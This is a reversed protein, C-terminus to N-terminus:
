TRVPAASGTPPRAGAGLHERLAALFRPVEVFLDGLIPIVIPRPRTRNLVLLPAEPDKNFAFVVARTGLWGLHQPAGSVGIALLVRPDVAVGTQGIQCSDPLLGLDQTVKRTAGIAIPGVGLSELGRRLPEIVEEIGDRSGIGYGVDIVFEAESLSVGLAAEARHLAGALLDAAGPLPVEDLLVPPVPEGELGAPRPVAHLEAACVLDSRGIPAEVAFRVQGEYCRGAAFLLGDRRTLEDVGDLLHRAPLGDPAAAALLAADRLEAAFIRAPPTGGSVLELLRAITLYSCRGLESWALLGVRAHPAVGLADGAARRLPGEDASGPVLALVWPARVLAAAGLIAARAGPLLAGDPGALVFAVVEAGPRWDALPRLPLPGEYRASPGSADGMGVAEAFLRAAGRADAPLGPSSQATAAESATAPAVQVALGTEQEIVPVAMRRARRWGDTTFSWESEPLTPSLLLMAPLPTVLSLGREGRVQLRLGPELALVDLGLVGVVPDLGLRRAVPLLLARSGDHGLVLDFPEGDLGERTRLLETLPGATETALVPRDGTALLFARNAGLALCEEVVDVSVPSGVGLVTLDLLSARGLALATRLVFRDGPALEFLPEGLRGRHIRPRPALVPRPDVIVAVRLRRGPQLVPAAEVASVPIESRRRWWDALAQASLDRGEVQRRREEGAESLLDEVRRVLDLALLRGARELYQRREPGAGLRRALALRHTAASLGMLLMAAEVLRFGLSQAPAHQWAASGLEARLSGVADLVRRRAQALDSRIAAEAADGALGEGAPRRAPDLTDVLDKLILFRQIENTGEYITLVRADRRRKELEHLDLAFRAPLIREARLLIRHLAESSMAKAAASEMRISVTGEHDFRGVLQWALSESAVLDLAMRGAAALQDPRLAREGMGERLEDVIEHMLGVSCAALGARGVNLTELANEQGRGEIGIVQDAAVRVDALTIENTASGRQGMKHEDKGIALGEAHADLLFGTPGAATRAYLVMVGAISGNTIWMKAGNVVYHPYVLRGGRDVVRGFDHIDIREGDLVMFRHKRPAGGLAQAEPDFDQIEIPVLSGDVRVFAIRGQEFRVREYPVLVRRVERGEPVFTFFGRPDGEVAVERLEARTRIRATDSGASPETLAFASIRGSAILRLYFEHARERHPISELVERAREEFGELAAAAADLGARFGGLDRALGAVAAQQFRGLFGGFVTRLAKERALVSKVMGGLEQMRPALGRVAPTDAAARIERVRDLIARVPGPERLLGELAARAQALDQDLGILIPTTGISTSGMVIIAQTPDGHRMMRTCAVYYSAKSAGLGGRERPIVRRFDGRDLLFRIDELPVHHLEEVLRTYPRGERPSGYRERWLEAAARDEASLVPDAELLEPTHALSEAGATGLLADGSTWALPAALYDAYSAGHAGSPGERVGPALVRRGLEVLEPGDPLRRRLLETRRRLRRLVRGAAGLPVPDPVAAELGDRARELLAALGTLRAALRGVAMTHIARAAEPLARLDRALAQIEAELGAAESALPFPAAEGLRLGEDGALHRPWIGGAVLAEIVHQGHEHFVEGLHLPLRTLAAADRYARCVPDEESYATGGLVQGALYAISRPSVGLLDIALAAGARAPWPRERLSELIEMAEAIQALMEQVAGFKIIGDQGRIDRFLGPFQVRDKAHELARNALYDGLGRVIAALDLALRARLAPRLGQGQFRARPSVAGLRILGPGAARLGQGGTVRLEVGADGPGLLVLGEPGVLVLVEAAGLLAAVEEGSEPMEIALALVRGAALERLVERRSGPREEELGDRSLLEVALLHGSLSLALGPVVRALEELVLERRASGAPLVADLGPASLGQVLRRLLRRGAPGPRSEAEMRAIADPGLEKGLLARLEERAHRDAARDWAAAPRPAEEALLFLRRVAPDHHVRFLEFDTEVHFFRAGALHQEALATWAAIASARELVAPAAGVQEVAEGLSRARRLAESGLDRLLAQDAGSLVSPMGRLHAAFSRMSRDLAALAQALGAAPEAELPVPEPGAQDSGQGQADARALDALGAAMRSELLWAEAPSYAEFVLRHGRLRAWDVRRDDARWCTECRVCNEHLVAVSAGASQDVEKKYVKAPCISFLSSGAHDPLGRADVVAHFHIHTGPDSRYSIRALKGDHTEREETRRYERRGRVRQDRAPHPTALIADLGPRRLKVWLGFALRHLHGAAVAGLLLLPLLVLDLLSLRSAVAYRARRLKEPMPVPDNRYLHHLAEAIGEGLCWRRYRFLPGPRRRPMAPDAWLEPRLLAETPGRRPWLGRLLNWVLWGTLPLLDRGLDPMGLARGADRLERALTRAKAWPLTEVVHRAILLARGPGRRTGLDAAGAALDIQRGFFERASGVFHPWHALARVDQFYHSAEVRALYRAELQARDFSGGAARIGAVAEAFAWGMFTAPGTYNPCPFDVGLGSAAGGVALGDLVLRPMEAFGGGRIIKAGFSVSRGGEIMAAIPPLGKLWEMLLNHPATWAALNRLPVVLGLSLSERNTYLFAGANLAVPAGDLVGNRLLIEYCAGEGGALGFRAELVERPLEIVEKIGQLFEPRVVGDADPGKRELGERAVLHAADGEALFVVEATIPGRDTLVGFVRDGDRLLATATTNRLIEAGHLRAKEALDHDFLPRLVTHCDAFASESRVSFGTAVEGDCVLLGRRVVRRELPTQLLGDVGLIEPRVLNECFYVAGSWNEAGPHLAGEVVLVPIGRRALGIAATVGAPGAGVVLVCTDRIV